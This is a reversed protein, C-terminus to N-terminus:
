PFYLEAYTEASRYETAVAPEIIGAAAARDLWAQIRAKQDPGAVFRVVAAVADVRGRGAFQSPMNFVIPKDYAPM